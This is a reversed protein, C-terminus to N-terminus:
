LTTLPMDNLSQSKTEGQFLKWIYHECEGFYYSGMCIHKLLCVPSKMSLKISDKLHFLFTATGKVLVRSLVMAYHCSSSTTKIGWKERSKTTESHSATAKGEQGWLLYRTLYTPSISNQFFQSEGLIVWGVEHLPILGMEGSRLRSSKVDCQSETFYPTLTKHQFGQEALSSSILREWGSTGGFLITLVSQIHPLM